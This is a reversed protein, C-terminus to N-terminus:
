PVVRIEPIPIIFKGGTKIFDKEKELIEKEYNYAFLVAYDIKDKRFIEPSVIPVHVGPILRGIREASEDVVYDIRDKGLSSFNMHIVARGSAGYGVIKKGESKLKEVMNKIEVGKKIVAQAFKFFTGEKDLGAEKELKLIEGVSSDINEKRDNKNRSYIRISGSHIPTRKVEFIEMDFIDLLYTLATFSHYMLHEHYIMDYQLTNLLDLLYHVEFVYVGDPKLLMKIAKMVEHMDDIHAFVNNACVMDAQGYQDIIKQASEQNFFDNIVICGKSRAIEAINSAPEVGVVEVGIDMFPKLLVGDNSGFEVVFSDESLFREKMEKAYNSFHTSLTKTTSALFRYDKFLIEPAVVDLLQVEKCTRCFYVALPYAEDQGADEPKIFGGALPMKGFDLFKVLDTGNCIRCCNKKIIKDMALKIM